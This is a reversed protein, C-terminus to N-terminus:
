IVFVAGARNGQRNVFDTTTIKCLSKLASVAHLSYEGVEPIPGLKRLGDVAILLDQQPKLQLLERCVHIVTTPELTWDQSTLVKYTERQAVGMRRAAAEIIRRYLLVEPCDCGAELRQNWGDNFEAYLTKGRRQNIEFDYLIHRLLVTKGSGTTGYNVCIPLRKRDRELCNWSLGMLSTEELTSYLVELAPLREDFHSDVHAPEPIVESVGTPILKSILDYLKSSSLDPHHLFRCRFM